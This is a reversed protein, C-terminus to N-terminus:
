QAGAEDSAVQDIRNKSGTLFHDHEIVEHTSISGVKAFFYFYYLYVDGVRINHDSDVLRSVSTLRAGRAGFRGTYAADAWMFALRPLEEKLRDTLLGQAVDHDHLSAAHVGFALSNNDILLHGEGGALRM